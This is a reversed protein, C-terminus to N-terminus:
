EPKRYDKGKPPGEVAMVAAKMKACHMKVHSFAMRAGEICSSRKVAEIQPLADTLRKVLNFYSCPISEAPWLWVVIDKMALGCM